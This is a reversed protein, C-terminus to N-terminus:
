RSARRPRADTGARIAAAEEGTLHVETRRRPLSEPYQQQLFTIMQERIAACLDGSAGASRASVLARVEITDPKINTVKLNCVQGDWLEHQKVIEDLKSRVAEIPTAYDLYFMVSGMLASGDRTWNQFPKEIFYSLPVIMRRWDWLKVVVYASTIEEITGFENEVIVADDLRIPQSMAIQIGAMLNSLVPRAALGAVIGAVGASAFLSVGLQRVVEFTMLACAVTVVVIASDAVRQLIRIQTTHKRALLNDEAALNFRALYLTTFIGVASIAIWGLLAIVGVALVRTVLDVVAADLPAFHLGIALGLLVLALRAPRQTEALISRLMPRNTGAAWGCLRTLVSHAFLAIVVAGALVVTGILWDPIGHTSRLWDNLATM